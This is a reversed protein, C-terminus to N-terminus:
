AEVGEEEPQHHASGDLMPPVMVGGLADALDAILERLEGTNIAVDADFADVQKQDEGQEGFAIDLVDVGKIRLTETLMFSVKGNWTLAVKTPVKGQRVHQAIEDLELTHRSYRVASKEGSPQKLECERDLTFGPPPEQTALWVAMATAPAQNTAMPHLNMTPAAAVLASILRDAGKSGAADVVVIRKGIDIWALTTSERSFARPQLTVAAEDKLERLAKGKPRRGTQQEAVDALRNVEKKIAAAPVTREETKAKIIWHSGIAEVLSGEDDRPPVWGYTIPQSPTCPTFRAGEMAETLSALMPIDGEIRFLTLNKFM